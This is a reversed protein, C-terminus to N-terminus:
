SWSGQIHKKTKELNKPDVKTPQVLSVLLSACQTGHGAIKTEVASLISIPESLSFM